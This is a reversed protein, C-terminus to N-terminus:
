FSRLGDSFVGGDEVRRNYRELAEKNEKQWAQRAQERTTKAIYETLAERVVQTKKKGLEASIRALKEVLGEELTFTVKKQMMIGKPVNVM